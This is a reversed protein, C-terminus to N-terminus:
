RVNFRPIDPRPTKRPMNFHNEHTNMPTQFSGSLDENTLDITDTSRENAINEASENILTSNMPTAILPKMNSTNKQFSVPNRLKLLRKSIDLIPTKSEDYLNVICLGSDRKLVQMRFVKREDNDDEALMELQTASNDDDHVNEFGTLCCQVVFPEHKIFQPPLCKVNEKEVFATFGYDILKVGVKSQHAADQVIEGRYWEKDFVACPEGVKIIKLEDSKKSLTLSLKDQLTNFAAEQKSPQVYFDKASKIYRIVIGESSGEPFDIPPLYKLPM